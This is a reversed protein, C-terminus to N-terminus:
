QGKVKAKLQAAAQPDGSDIGNLIQSVDPM